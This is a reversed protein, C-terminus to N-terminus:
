VEDIQDIVFLGESSVLGGLQKNQNEPNQAVGFSVNEEVVHAKGSSIKRSPVMEVLLESGGASDESPAGRCDKFDNGTSPVVRSDGTKAIPKSARPKTRVNKTGMVCAKKPFSPKTLIQVFGGRAALNQRRLHTKGLYHANLLNEEACQFGCLDCSFVKQPGHTHRVHEHPSSSSEARHSCHCCTREKGEEVHCEVHKELASCSSFSCGCVGCRLGTEVSGFSCSISTEEPPFPNHREPVLSVMERAPKKVEDVKLPLINSTSFDCSPSFVSPLASGGESCNAPFAEKGMEALHVNAEVTGLGCAGQERTEPELAETRLRKSAHESRYEEAAVGDSNSSESFVRKSTFNESANAMDDSVPESSDDRSSVSRPDKAGKVSEDEDNDHKNESDM